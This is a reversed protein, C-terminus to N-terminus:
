YHLAESGFLWYSPYAKWLHNWRWILIPFSYMFPFNYVVLLSLLFDSKKESIGYDETDWKKGLMGAM